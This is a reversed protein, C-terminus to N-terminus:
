QYRLDDKRESHSGACSPQECRNTTGVQQHGHEDTDGDDGTAVYLTKGNPTIAMAVPRGVYISNGAKNTSTDIPTVSGGLITAVYVTKGNPSVVIGDPVSGVPIPQGASNDTTRIPTVTNDNSNTM